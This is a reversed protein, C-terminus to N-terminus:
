HTTYYDGWREDVLYRVCAVSGGRGMGVVRCRFWVEDEEWWIRLLDGVVVGAGGGEGGCGDDGDEDEFDAESGSDGDGGDSQGDTEESDDGSSGGGGSRETRRRGGAVGKGRRKRKRNRRGPARWNAKRRRRFSVDVDELGPALTINGDGEVGMYVAFHAAQRRKNRAKAERALRLAVRQEKRREVGVDPCKSVALGWRRFGQLALRTVRGEKHEARRRWGRIARVLRVAAGWEAACHLWDSACEVRRAHRGEIAALEQRWTFHRGLGGAALGSGRRVTEGIAGRQEQSMEPEAAPGRLAVLMRLRGVVRYARARDKEDKLFQEKAERYQAVAARWSDAGATLARSAAGRAEKGAGEPESICGVLWRMATQRMTENGGARGQLVAVTVETPRHQKGESALLSGVEEVAAAVVGRREKAVPLCCDFMWHESSCAGGGCECCVSAARVGCAGEYYAGDGLLLRRTQVAQLVRRQKAQGRGWRLAWDRSDRWISRTWRGQMRERVHRTIREAAWRFPRRDFAFTLSAHRRRPREDEQVPAEELLRTAQLDAMENAVAGSHGKLWYFVVIEMRELERLLEDLMDDQFYEARKNVHAEPLQKGVM